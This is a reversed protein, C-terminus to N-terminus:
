NTIKVKFMVHVMDVTRPSKMSSCTKVIYYKRKLSMMSGTDKRKKVMALYFANKQKQTLNEENMKPFMPMHTM